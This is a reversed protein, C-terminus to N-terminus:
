QQVLANDPDDDFLMVSGLKTGLLQDSGLKTELPVVGM